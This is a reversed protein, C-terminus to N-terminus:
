ITLEALQEPYHTCDFRIAEADAADGSLVTLRGLQGLEYVREPVCGTIYLIHSLVAEGCSRLFLEAGSLGEAERASLLRPLLGILEDMNRIQRSVCRQEAADNWAITFQVGAELLSRCCTVVVDAQADIEEPAAHQTREWFVLVSRSVPLSPERIVLQDLKSSLKWHMQRLSDGPQYDRLQYVEGLDYGARDPAYSESDDPCNADASVFITQVFGKPQVTAQAPAIRQVRVGFIGFPDYIRCCDATIALRGCHASALRYEATNRGRAQASLRCRRVESQGTLLNSLRLRLGIRCLPLWTGNEVRVCLAGAEGKELNVPAELQLRLRKAAWLHLPLCVLPTLVPLLTLALTVVSGCFVDLALATLLLLAYGIRSATM